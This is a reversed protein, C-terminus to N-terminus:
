LLNYYSNIDNITSKWTGATKKDKYWNITKEISTRSNWRPEWGLEKKSKANNLYLIRAEHKQNQRTKTEYGGNGWAEIALQTLEEVTLVDGLDPGFNWSPENQNYFDINQYNQTSLLLYGHLCDLVHQWPRTSKPNRLEVKEGASLARVIDPVIRNESYDGGGIVNGARATSIRVNSDQFFSHLYSLTILEACSKSSSYPDLGGLPDNEKFAIGNDINKYVKDTTVVIVSCNKKLARCSELLNATGMANVEFSYIPTQYSDLVLPQAAMHFVYDPEFDHVVKQLNQLNRIDGINSQCLENGNIRSYLANKLPALAYGQVEVDFLNLISLLWAGKFGTHGTVLVKKDKFAASLKNVVEM